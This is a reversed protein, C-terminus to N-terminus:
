LIADLTGVDEFAALIDLADAGIFPVDGHVFVSTNTRVRHQIQQTKLM